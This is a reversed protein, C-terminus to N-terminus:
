NLNLFLNYLPLDLHKKFSNRKELHKIQRKYIKMSLVLLKSKYASDTVNSKATEEVKNRELIMRKKINFHHRYYGCIYNIKKKPLKGEDELEHLIKRNRQGEINLITPYIEKIKELRDYKNTRIPNFDKFFNNIKIKKLEPIKKEPSIATFFFKNENLKLYDIVKSPNLNFNKVQFDDKLLCMTDNKNEEEKALKIKYKYKKTLSNFYRFTAKDNFRQVVNTSSGQSNFSVKQKVKASNLKKYINNDQSFSNKIGEKKENIISNNFYNNVHNYNYNINNDSKNKSDLLKSFNNKVTASHYNINLPLHKTEKQFKIKSSNNNDSYLSKKIDKNIDDKININNNKNIDKNGLLIKGVNLSSYNADNKKNNDNENKKICKDHYKKKAKSLNDLAMKKFYTSSAARKLLKSSM